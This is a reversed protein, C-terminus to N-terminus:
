ARFRLLIDLSACSCSESESVEMLSPLLSEKADALGSASSKRVAPGKVRVSVAELSGFELRIRRGSTISM